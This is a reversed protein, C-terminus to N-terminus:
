PKKGAIYHFTRRLGEELPVRARWGLGRAARAPDLVSRFLEGARRPRRVPKVASGATEALVRYLRNVSVGRGTGINFAHDTGRGLAAVNARAVDEVFVYDREQRGDGFVTAPAGEILRRCFIAVVGAEGHPDQRPGYVNGYRLVTYRLGHLARYARLYHEGALKAVGYPSLPHPEDTERAPRSPVEGYYTGGSAALIVKKVGRRRGAELLTLLGKVNVEADFVPDAVSRRVDMQAAHHNVVAFRGRRLVNEVARADRVDARVFRAKPNVQERRGTSLDDLATVRHGRAIYLDVVHSGIFGAGGTVLINM